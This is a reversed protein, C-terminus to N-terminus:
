REMCWIHDTDFGFHSHMMKLIAAKLAVIEWTSFRLSLIQGFAKWWFYWEMRRSVLILHAHSIKRVFTIIIKIRLINRKEKKSLIYILFIKIDTSALLLAYDHIIQSDKLTKLRSHPLKSLSTDNLIWIQLCFLLLIYTQSQRLNM